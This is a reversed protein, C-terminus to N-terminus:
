TGGVSRAIASSSSNRQPYFFRKASQFCVAKKPVQSRRRQSPSTEQGHDHGLRVTASFVVPIRGFQLNFMAWINDVKTQPDKVPDAEISRVEDLFTQWKRSQDAWEFDLFRTWEGVDDPSRPLYTNCPTLEFTPPADWGEDAPLEFSFPKHDSLKESRSRCSLAPSNYIVFDIIASSNWRSGCTDRPYCVVAGQTQLARCLRSEDPQENFDGLIVWSDHTHAQTLEFLNQFFDSKQPRHQVYINFVLRNGIQTCM